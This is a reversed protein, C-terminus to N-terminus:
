YPRSGIWDADFTSEFQSIIDPRAVLVGLERNSNLSQQSFNQSGVFAEKNDAVIVKAHIYFKATSAYTRVEVGAAKLENLASKWSTSYTMDVRVSVGRQAAAELASVVRPDAM